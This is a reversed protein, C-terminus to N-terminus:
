QSCKNRAVSIRTQPHSAAGYDFSFSFFFTLSPTSSHKIVKRFEALITFELSCRAGLPKLYPITSKHKHKSDMIGIRFDGKCGCLEGTSERSRMLQTVIPLDCSRRSGWNEWGYLPALSLALTLIFLFLTGQTLNLFSCLCFNKRQSCLHCMTFGWIYTGEPHPGTHILTVCLSTPNQKKNEWIFTLIPDQFRNLRNEIYLLRLGM